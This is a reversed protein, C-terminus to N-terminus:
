CEELSCAAIAETFRFSSDNIEGLVIGLSDLMHHVTLICKPHWKALLLASWELSRGGRSDSCAVTEGTRAVTWGISTAVQM